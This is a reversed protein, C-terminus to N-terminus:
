RVLIVERLFSSSETTTAGRVLGPASVMVGYVESNNNGQQTSLNLTVAQAPTLIFYGFINRITVSGGSGTPNTALYTDVDFLAVPVIRPSEAHYLGDACVGPACSGEISRTVPNWSAGPDKDTLTGVGSVTPGSMGGTEVPITDGIGRTAGNCNEINCKYKAAGSGSCNPGSLDLAQFWGPSIATNGSSIKLSLMQGYDRLTGDTNTLSFGSGTGVIPNGNADYSPLTYQDPSFGATTISPDIGYVSGTKAYKDFTQSINWTYNAAWSGPCPPFSNPGGSCVRKVNEAWRDAVAWPKLCDTANGSVIQATATARVGQETRGFLPGFFTPLPNNGENRYVNARVCTGGTLPTPCEAAAGDHPFSIDLAPDANDGQGAGRDINLTGGFVTNTEGVTEAVARAREFDSPNDFALSVAGAHAAADAANQAQRRSSWMVGYDVSLASFAVLGIMAVAVYVLVAGNESRRRAALSERAKM